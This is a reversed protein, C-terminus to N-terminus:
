IGPRYLRVMEHIAERHTLGSAVMKEMEAIEGGNSTFVYYNFPDVALRVIGSGYPTEMYIESYKAQNKQVSKLQDITFPDYDLLKEDLAKLYDKSELLFKYESNGWLIHGIQGFKKIDLVSQCIVVFSGKYKRARRFGSEIIDAIMRNDSNGGSLFQWAEDFIVQRRQSRDSFYLDRTMADLVLLTVVRFLDPKGKLAELEFLVFRDDKINFTSEGVFYKGYHGKSTFERMNFALHLANQKIAETIPVGNAVHQPYTQMYEYVDDVSANAGNAAYAWKVASKVLTYEEERIIPNATASYAMTMIIAAIAPLDEEEDLINSFPNLCIGSDSTFDLYKGNFIHALRKYSGGIDIIRLITGATYESFAIANQNFSKGGGTGAAVFGNYNSAADSFTSYGCIQGNRGQYLMIPERSGSFEGQIPLMNCIVGSDFVEDRSLKRLRRKSANLGLPLAGLLLAPLIVRDEQMVFGKGEWIYKAQKVADDAREPTDGILWMVQMFRMFNEGDDIQDIAGSYEEQMKGLKRAFSGAARQMLVMDCKQRITAKLNDFIIAACYLFPVKHQENDYAIGGIGGFLEKTTLPDTMPPYSKPTLCRWFGNGIQIYDDEVRVPTEALIIQEGISHYQDYHSALEKGNEQKREPVTGNFMRRLWEVLADPALHRPYLHMGSLAEHVLARIESFKVGTVEPTFKLSVILRLNRLPIGSLQPKGKTCGQLFNCYNEVAEHVLPDTSHARLSRYAEIHPKINPDAYLMFSLVTMPPVPLRLLAESIQLTKESSFVLPTCEWIFGCSGDINHYISTEDDYGLWPLFESFRDHEFLSDIDAVTPGSRHDGLLLNLIKHLM